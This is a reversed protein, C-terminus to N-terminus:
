SEMKRKNKTFVKALSYATVALVFPISLAWHEGELTIGGWSYIASFTPDDLARHIATADLMNVDGSSTFHRVSAIGVLYTGVLWGLVISSTTILLKKTGQRM